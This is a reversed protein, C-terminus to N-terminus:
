VVVRVRRDTPAILNAFLFDDSKDLGYLQEYFAVLIGLQRFPAPHAFDDGPSSM